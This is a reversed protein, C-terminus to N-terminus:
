QYTRDGGVTKSGDRDSDVRPDLKNLMDSNHPGSTNSTGSTGTHTGTHSGTAGHVGTHAGTTGSTNSGPGGVGYGTQVGTYGGTTGHTGTTGHSSHTGHTGTSGFAGTNHSGDRDSDVRPDLANATRTSHPGHEGERRTATSSTFDSGSHTGHTGHTGSSGYAGTNHSGDRDSDVRPDLANAVRSNHPGSDGERSGYGTDTTNTHHTGTLGGGTANHTNSSGFGTGTNTHHTGTLGGGTTRNHGDRDSDVRPDAANAIRSSHPGHEGERTGSTGYSSADTNTHHTGTLGGGTVTSHHSGQHSGDRDSDVRPDAANAIRSSHPGHEGERTGSSGYTGTGTGGSSGTHGTLGHSTHEPGSGHATGHAYGGTASGYQNTNHSGDRDSDVRPDLANGARTNHPGSQGERSAGLGSAGTHGTTGHSTHEPGSGHATGHVYGGTASGYENKGTHTGTTNSHTNSTTTNDHSDGHLADKVKNIISSM